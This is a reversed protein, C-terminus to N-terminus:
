PSCTDLTRHAGGCHVIWTYVGGHAKARRWQATRAMMHCKANSAVGIALTSAIDQSRWVHCASWSKGQRRGRSWSGTAGAASPRLRAAVRWRCGSLSARGKRCTPRTGSTGCAKPVCASRPLRVSGIGPVRPGESADSEVDHCQEQDKSEARIHSTTIQTAKGKESCHVRSGVLKRGSAQQWLTCVAGEQLCQPPPAVGM